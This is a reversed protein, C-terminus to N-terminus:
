MHICGRSYFAANKESKYAFNCKEDDDNYREADAADAIVISTTINKMWGYPRSKIFFKQKM